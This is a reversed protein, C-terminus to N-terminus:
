QAKIRLNEEEFFSAHKIFLAGLEDFGYSRTIEWVQPIFEKLLGVIFVQTKPQYNNMDVGNLVYLCLYSFVEMRRTDLKVIISALPIIGLGSNASKRIKLAHEIAGEINVPIACLIESLDMINYEKELLYSGSTLSLLSIYIGVCGRTTDDVGVFCERILKQFIRVKEDESSSLIKDASKGITVKDPKKETNEHQRVVPANTPETKDSAFLNKGWKEFETAFMIKSSKEHPAIQNIRCFEDIKNNYMAFSEKATNVMNQEHLRSIEVRAKALEDELQKSQMAGGLSFLGRLLFFLAALAFLVVLVMIQLNRAIYPLEMSSASSLFDTFILEVAM